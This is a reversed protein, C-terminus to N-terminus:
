EMLTANKKVVSTGSTIHLTNERWSMSFQCTAKLIAKMARGEQEWARREAEYGGTNSHQVLRDLTHRQANMWYGPTKYGWYVRWIWNAGLGSWSSLMPRFCAPHNKCMPKSEPRIWKALVQCLWCSNFWIWAPKACYSWHRSQFFLASVSVAYVIQASEPQVSAMVAMVPQCFGFHKWIPDPMNVPVASTQSPHPKTHPQQQHIHTSAESKGWLPPTSTQPPWTPRTHM